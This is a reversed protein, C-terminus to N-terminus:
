KTRWIRLGDQETRGTFLKNHRKGFNVAAIYPASNTTCGPFFLSEFVELEGFGYKEPRGRRAVPPIPVGKEKQM